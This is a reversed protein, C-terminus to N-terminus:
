PCASGSCTGAQALLSAIDPQPQRSAQLENPDSALDYDEVFGDGWEIYQRTPSLYSSWTPVEEAAPGEVLLWPRAPGTLLSRGDVAYGPTVGSAGYITPAIDVSSTLHQNVDGATVHGPWEVYLPVQASELYPWQKAALRHEGYLMGNDSMFIALTSQREGLQDLDQYISGVMEDVAELETLAGDRAIPASTPQWGAAAETVSPHKDSLDSEGFAPAPDFPPIPQPNAPEVNFPAHPSDPAVVLAWPRSDDQEATELFSAAGDAALRPDNPDDFAWAKAFDFYPAKETRVGNLYKGVIGTRYGADHLYREWTRTADFGNGDNITIGTNHPYRGSFISARSPCCLPQAVYANRFSTGGQEFIQRTQPMVDMTGHGFGQDDTIILLINPPQGAPPPGDDNEITGMGRGDGVTANVPNSLDVSFTEEPEDSSDAVVPVLVRHEVKGPPIVITGNTRGYDGPETATRDNTTYDVSVAQDTGHDLHVTFAFSKSGSSGEPLSVDDISVAPTPVGSAPPPTRAFEVLSNDFHGTAYVSTGDPSLAVSAAGDLGETSGGSSPDVDEEMWTLLGTAQDRRFTVVSDAAAGTAYLSTGDASVDLGHAEKLGPSGGRPVDLLEQEWRLRGSTPNRTFVDIDDDHTGAVYVNAGSPDVVVGAPDALGRTSGGASPDALDAVWKLKGSTANSRFTVISSFGTVYVNSGDPAVAVDRPDALGPATGGESPSTLEQSWTLKGSTTNRRFRVISQDTSSVVYVQRNDPSVAVSVAGELGPSDPAADDGVWTLGGTSLNRRMTVVSNDGVGIVYVSRGDPSVAVEEAGSLGEADGGADPDRDVDIQTLTGTAPDRRFSVIADDYVGTAYVNASDPSVAVGSAGYLGDVGGGVETARQEGTPILLGLDAGSEQAPAPSSALLVGGAVVAVLPVAVSRARSAIHKKDAPAV